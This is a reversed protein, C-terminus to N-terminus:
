DINETIIFIKVKNYIKHNQANSAVFFNKPQSHMVVM